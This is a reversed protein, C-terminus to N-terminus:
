ASGDRSSGHGNPATAKPLGGDGDAEREDRAAKKPASGDRTAFTLLIGIDYTAKLSGAAVFSVWFLGRDALSGTVYPGISTAGTKAVNILGMMATRQDPPLASALFASRPAVDMSQTCARGVLFVLALWLSTPIPIMALCVASPLHTFVM